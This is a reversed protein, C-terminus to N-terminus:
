RQRPFWGHLSGAMSNLSQVADSNCLHVTNDEGATYQEFSNLTVTYTSAACLLQVDSVFEYVRAGTFNLAVSNSVTTGSENEWHGNTFDIANNSTNLDYVQASQCVDVTTTGSQFAPQEVNITLSAQSGICAGM